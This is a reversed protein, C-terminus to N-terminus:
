GPSINGWIDVKEEGPRPSENVLNLTNLFGTEKLSGVEIDGNQISYM